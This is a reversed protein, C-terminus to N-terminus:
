RGDSRCYMVSYHIGYEKVSNIILVMINSFGNMKTIWHNLVNLHM